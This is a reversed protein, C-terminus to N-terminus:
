LISLAILITSIIGVVVWCVVTTIICALLKRGTSETSNAKVLCIIAGGVAFIIGLLGGDIVFFILANLVVFVWVWKPM